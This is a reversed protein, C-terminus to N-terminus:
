IYFSPGEIFHTINKKIFVALHMAMLSETRLMLYDAGIASKLVREWADKSPFMISKEISTQCEQSGVVIIHPQEAQLRMKKFLPHIDIDPYIGNMNWTVIFISVKEERTNSSRHGHMEDISKVFADTFRRRVQYLSKQLTRGIFPKPYHESDSEEYATFSNPHIFKM